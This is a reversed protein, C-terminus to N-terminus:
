PTLPNLLSQGEGNTGMVMVVTGAIVTDVAERHGLLQMLLYKGLALRCGEVWLM